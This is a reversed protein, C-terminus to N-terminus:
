EEKKKRRQVDVGEYRVVQAKPLGKYSAYSPEHELMMQYMVEHTKVKLAQMDDQTMGATPIPDGFHCELTYPRILMKKENIFQHNGILVIPVIPRQLDIAIRFAGSHFGKLPIEPHTNRTGEPFILISFNNNAYEKLVEVSKRRSEKDSRDVFLAGKSFLYGVVPIKKIEIKVLPLFTIKTIAKVVLVADMMSTHNPAIVYSQNPDVKDEGFVNIKIGTM